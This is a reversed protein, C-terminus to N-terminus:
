RYQNILDRLAKEPFTKALTRLQNAFPTYRTDMQELQDAQKMIEKLNGKM